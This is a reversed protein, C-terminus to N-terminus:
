DGVIGAEVEAEQIVLQRLAAPGRDAHAAHAVRKRKRPGPMGPGLVAEIGQARAEPDIPAEARAGGHVAEPLLRVAGRTEQM